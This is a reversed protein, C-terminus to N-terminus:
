IQGQNNFDRGHKPCYLGNRDVLELGCYPRRQNKIPHVCYSRIKPDGLLRKAEEDTM